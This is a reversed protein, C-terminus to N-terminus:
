ANPVLLTCSKRGQMFICCRKFNLAAIKIGFVFKGVISSPMLSEMWKLSFLNQLIGQGPNVCLKKERETLYEYSDFLFLQQADVPNLVFSM